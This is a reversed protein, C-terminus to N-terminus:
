EAGENNEIEINSKKLIYNILELEKTQALVEAQKEAKQSKRTVPKILEKIGSFAVFSEMMYGSHNSCEVPTVSLYYGRSEQKGNWVNYGGLSYYIEVKLHTIKKDNEKIKIYKKM